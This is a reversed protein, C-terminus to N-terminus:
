EGTQGTDQQKDKGQRKKKKDKDEVRTPKAIPKGSTNCPFSFDCGANRTTFMCGECSM